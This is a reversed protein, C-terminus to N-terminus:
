HSSRRDYEGELRLVIKLFDFLVSAHKMRRQKRKEYYTM